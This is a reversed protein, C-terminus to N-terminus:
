VCVHSHELYKGQVDAMDILLGSQVESRVFKNYQEM